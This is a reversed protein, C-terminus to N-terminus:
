YFIQATFFAGTSLAAPLTITRLFGVTTVPLLSGNVKASDIVMLTDLEFLYASMSPAVVQATTSVDGWLYVSTDTVHLNFRLYKMDYNEEGPDLETVKASNRHNEFNFRGAFSNGAFLILVLVVIVSKNKM